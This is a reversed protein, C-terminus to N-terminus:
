LDYGVIQIWKPLSDIAHAAVQLWTYIQSFYWTKYGVKRGVKIMNRIKFFFRWLKLKIKM